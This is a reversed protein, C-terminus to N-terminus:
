GTLRRWWSREAQERWADRDATLAILKAKLREIQGYAAGAEHAAAVLDDQAVALRKQLQSIQERLELVLEDASKSM